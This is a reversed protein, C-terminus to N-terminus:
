LATPFPMSLSPPGHGTKLLLGQIHESPSLLTVLRGDSSDSNWRFVNATGVIMVHDGTDGAVTILTM